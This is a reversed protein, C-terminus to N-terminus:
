SCSMHCADQTQLSLRELAQLANAHEQEEGLQLEQAAMVEKIQWPNCNRTVGHEVSYDSNKPDTKLTFEAACGTCRWRFRFIKLGKWDEGKVNEMRSNLKTGKLMFNGCTNCCVSCPLMMRVRMREDRLREGRPRKAIDFDPPYYKDLLKRREATTVM